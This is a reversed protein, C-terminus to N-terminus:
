KKVSITRNNLVFNKHNSQFLLFVKQMTPECRCARDLLAVALGADLGPAFISLSLPGEWRRTLEVIAYVQDATAHTCLTIQPLKETMTSEHLISPLIRYPGKEGAEPSWIIKSPSYSFEQPLNYNWNCFSSNKPQTGAM